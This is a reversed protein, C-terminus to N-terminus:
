GARVRAAALADAVSTVQGYGTALLFTPARGYSKMGALYFGPVAAHALEAAGHPAVTRCTHRRPDILPALAAPCELEADLDLPLRSLLSLDPRQGTTVM